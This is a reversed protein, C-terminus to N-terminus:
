PERNLYDELTQHFHRIRVEQYNSLTVGPKHMAHLGRQIMELNDLDQDLVAGLGGLETADSFIEDDSLLRMPAEKEPRDKAAVFLYMVEMLCVNPDDGYPRFRYVVPAGIGAWPIFNPFVFYQVTDLMEADSVEGFDAGTSRGLSQRFLEALKTRATEGPALPYPGRGVVPMDKVMDDLMIQENTGIPATNTIVGISSIVRSIHRVGPWVDYQANNDGSYSNTQPHTIAIHYGEMFAEMAVKWNCRIVKGVHAAKHRDELPWSRFYGPLTELYSELPETEPSMCIFVFGGWSGTRIVPMRFNERDVHPFDWAAPKAILEGALSWTFGHFPCRFRDVNGGCKRLMTGRHLCANPFARIEGTETRAVIISEGGVEYVVHDGPNPIERERCAVQWVRRWVKDMEQKHFEPSFYRDKSLDADGLFMRSEDRLVAPAVRSDGDLIEQVTAERRVNKKDADSGPGDAM